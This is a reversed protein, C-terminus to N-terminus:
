QISGVISGQVTRVIAVAVLVVILGIVSYLVANKASTIQNPDGNATIFRIGGSIIFYVAVYGGTVIVWQVLNMAVIWMDEIKKPPIVTTLDNRSECQLGNFWGPYGLVNASACTSPDGEAYVPSAFMSAALAGVVVLGVLFIKKM